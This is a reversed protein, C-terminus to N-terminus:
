PTVSVPSAVVSESVVDGQILQDRAFVVHASNRAIPAFSGVFDENKPEMASVEWVADRFDQDDTDRHRLVYMLVTGDLSPEGSVQATVAINGRDDDFFSTVRTMPREGLAFPVFIQFWLSAHTQTQIGDGADRVVFDYTEAPLSDRYLNFARLPAFTMQTGWGRLVRKGLLLEEPWQAPDFAAKYAEGEATRLYAQWVVPDGLTHGDAWVEEQLAFYEDLAGFAGTSV